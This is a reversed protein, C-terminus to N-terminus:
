RTKDVGVVIRLGVTLLSCCLFHFPVETTRPPTGANLSNQLITITKLILTCKPVWSYKRRQKCADHRNMAQSIDVWEIFPCGRFACSTFWRRVLSYMGTTSSLFAVLFGVRLVSCRSNQRGGWAAPPLM